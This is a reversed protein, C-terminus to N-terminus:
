RGARAQRQAVLLRAADRLNGSQNLRSNLDKIQGDETVGERPTSSGPRQVQPVPKVVAAKVNTRAERYRLADRILLQMRHDRFSIKDGQFYLKGLEADTFGLDNLMRGAAEAAKSAKEKDALDPAKEAFLADQESVFSQWKTQTEQAERAQAAQVQQQVAAIKKQQADWLVYRPWDDRALREIDAITKVDSFEGQHQEQLAQMLMPLAQEYQQRVQEAAQEKATLGKSKEAAENLRTSFERERSRERDALREQTERPLGKFLEKDEKTWSRPPDIPPETEQAADEAQTEGPGTEQATDGAEQSASEQAPPQEGDPPAEGETKDKRRSDVLSRAAALASLAGDGGAVREVIPAGQEAQGEDAM